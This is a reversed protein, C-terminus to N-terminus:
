VDTYTDLMSDRKIDADSSRPQSIVHVELEESDAIINLTSSGGYSGRKPPGKLKVEDRPM